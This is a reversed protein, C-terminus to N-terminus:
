DAELQPILHELEQITERLKQEIHLHKDQHILGESKLQVFQHYKEKLSELLPKPDIDGSKLPNLSKIGTEQLRPAQKELLKAKTITM